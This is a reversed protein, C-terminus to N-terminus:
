VWDEVDKDNHGKPLNLRLPGSCLIRTIKRVYRKPVNQNVFVLLLGTM